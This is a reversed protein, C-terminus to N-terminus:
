LKGIAYLRISDSTLDSPYSAAPIQILPGDNANNNDGYFVMVKNTAYDYAYIYGARGRIDVWFPDTSIKALQKITTALVEGGTTYSGSAVVTAVVHVRKTDHWRQVLTPTLAM